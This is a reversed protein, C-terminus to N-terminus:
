ECILIGIFICISIIVCGAIQFWSLSISINLCIITLYHMIVITICPKIYSCIRIMPLSQLVIYHLIRWPVARLKGYKGSAVLQKKHRSSFSIKFM